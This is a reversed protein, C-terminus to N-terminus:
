GRKAVLMVTDDVSVWRMVRFRRDKWQIYDGPQFYRYGNMYVKFGKYERQEQLIRSWIRRVM